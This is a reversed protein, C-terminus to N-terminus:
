PRVRIGPCTKYVNKPSCGETGEDSQAYYISLTWSKKIFNGAPLEYSVLRHNELRFAFERIDMVEPISLIIGSMSEDETKVM